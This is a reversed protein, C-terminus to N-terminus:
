VAKGKAQCSANPCYWKKTRDTSPKPFGKPICKRHYSDACGDCCHLDQKEIGKKLNGCGACKDSNGDATYAANLVLTRVHALHDSSTNVLVYCLEDPYVSGRRDDSEDGKEPRLHRHSGEFVPM